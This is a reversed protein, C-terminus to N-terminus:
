PVPCGSVNDFHPHGASEVAVPPGRGRDVVPNLALMREWFLLVTDDGEAENVTSPFSM